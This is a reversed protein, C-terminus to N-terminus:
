IAVDSPCLVFASGRGFGVEMMWVAGGDGRALAGAVLSVPGEHLAGMTPILGVTRGAARYAAVAHRLEAVTRVIALKEPMIM